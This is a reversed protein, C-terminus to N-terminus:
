TEVAASVILKRQSSTDEVGWGAVGEERRARLRESRQHRIAVFDVARQRIRQWRGLRLGHNRRSPQCVALLAIEQADEKALRWRPGDVVKGLNLNAPLIQRATSPSSQGHGLLIWEGHFGELKARPPPLVWRAHQRAGVAASLPLAASRGGGRDESRTAPLMASRTRTPTPARATNLNFRENSRRPRRAGVGHVNCPASAVASCLSKM